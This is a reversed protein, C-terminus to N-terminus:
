FTGCDLFIRPAYAGMSREYRSAIPNGDIDLDLSNGTAVEYEVGTVTHTLPPDFDFPVLDNWQNNYYVQLVIPSQSFDIRIGGDETRVSDKLVINNLIKDTITDDYYGQLSNYNYYGMDPSATISNVKLPQVNWNTGNWIYFEDTDTALATQPQSPSLTLINAKTDITTVTPITPKNLIQADGSVANWDANVNVEAGTAISSLKVKETTTYDETSLGKGVIKDVKDDLETQLDTQNSLTGTISGWTGGSAVPQSSAGGGSIHVTKTDETRLKNLLPDFVSADSM